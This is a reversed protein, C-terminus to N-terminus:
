TSENKGVSRRVGFSVNSMLVLTKDHGPIM